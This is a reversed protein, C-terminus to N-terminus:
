LKKGKIKEKLPINIYYIVQQFDKFINYANIYDIIERYIGKILKFQKETIKRSNILRYASECQFVSLIPHGDVFITNQNTKAATQIANILDECIKQLYVLYRIFVSTQDGLLSTSEKLIIYQYYRGFIKELTKIKTTKGCATPGVFYIIRKPAQPNLKRDEQIRFLIENTLTM